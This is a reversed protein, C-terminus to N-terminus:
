TRWEYGRRWRRTTTTTVTLWFGSSLLRNLKFFFWRKVCYMCENHTCVYITIIMLHVPNHEARGGRHVTHRLVQREVFFVPIPHNLSFLTKPGPECLGVRREHQLFQLTAPVFNLIRLWFPTGGFMLASSYLIKTETDAFAFLSFKILFFWIKLFM